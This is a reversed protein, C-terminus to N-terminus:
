KYPKSTAKTTLFYIIVICVQSEMLVLYGKILYNLDLNSNFYFILSGIALYPVLRLQHLKLKLRQNNLDSM